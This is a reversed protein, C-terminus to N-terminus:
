EFMNACWGAISACRRTVRVCCCNCLYSCCGNPEDHRTLLDNCYSCTNGCKTFRGSYHKMCDQYCKCPSKRSQLRIACCLCDRCCDFECKCICRIPWWRIHTRLEWFCDWACCRCCYKEHHIPHDIATPTTMTSETPTPQTQIPSASPEPSVPLEPSAPLEPPTEFVDANVPVDSPSVDCPSIDCPSSDGNEQITDAM